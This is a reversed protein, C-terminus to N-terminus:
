QQLKESSRYSEPMEGTPLRLPMGVTLRTYDSVQPNARALCRWASSRGLHSRALAWLTDGRKVIILSEPKDARVIPNRPVLVLSGQRLTDPPDKAAANLSRLEPWRAGSGLYLKALKWWSDGRQVRLLRLGAPSQRPVTLSATPSEVRERSPPAVPAVSVAPPPALL